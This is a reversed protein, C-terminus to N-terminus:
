NSPTLTVEASSYDHRISALKAAAISVYSSTVWGEVGDKTRIHFWSGSANLGLITVTETQRVNTGTDKSTTIPETKVAVIGGTVIGTFYPCASAVATATAQVDADSADVTGVPTPQAVAVLGDVVPINKRILPDIQVFASPLWGVLGTNTQVEVWVFSSTRGIVSVVDLKRVYLVEPSGTLAKQLVAIYDAVIVGPIAPKPNCPDVTAEKTSQLRASSAGEVPLAIIAFCLALCIFLAPIVIRRNM